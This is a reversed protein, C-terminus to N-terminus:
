SSASTRRLTSAWRRRIWGGRRPGRPPECRHRRVDDDDRGRRRGSRGAPRGCTRGRRRRRRRARFGGHAQGDADCGRRRRERRGRAAPRPVAENSTPSTVVGGHRFSASQGDPNERRVQVEDPTLGQPGRGTLGTPIRGFAHGLVQFLDGTPQACARRRYRGRMRDVQLGPRM